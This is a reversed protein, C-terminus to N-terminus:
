DHRRRRLTHGLVTLVHIPMQLAQRPPKRHGVQMLYDLCHVWHMSDHGGRHTSPGGDDVEAQPPREEGEVQKHKHEKEFGDSVLPVGGKMADVDDHDLHRARVRSSLKTNEERLDQIAGRIMQLCHLQHFMTVGAMRSRRGDLKQVVFGGNPPLLATWNADGARSLDYFERHESFTRPMNRRRDTTIRPLTPLSSPSSLSLTTFVLVVTAILALLIVKCSM